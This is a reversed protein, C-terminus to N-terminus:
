GLPDNSPCHILTKKKFNQSIMINLSEKYIIIILKLELTEDKVCPRM